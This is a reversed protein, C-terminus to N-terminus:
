ELRIRPDLRAALLDAALNGLGILLAGFFVSGMVVPIDKNQVAVLVQQGIGPYSFVWEVLVIGTLLYAFDLSVLTTVPILANRLMHRMAVTRPRLGKANATRVYDATVQNILTTRLFIAYGAASPIAVSLTPLILHQPTGSGGFPLLKWRFAVFYVLVLALLFAPVAISVTNFVMIGRDLASNRRVASLLGLPLGLALSTVVILAALMATNPFKDLLM